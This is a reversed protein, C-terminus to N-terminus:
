KLRAWVMARWRWVPRRMWSPRPADTILWYPVRYAKAIQEVSLRTEDVWVTNPGFAASWTADSADMLPASPEETYIAFQVDDGPEVTSLDLVGGDLWVGIEHGNSCRYVGAKPNGEEDWETTVNGLTGGCLGINNPGPHGCVYTLATM